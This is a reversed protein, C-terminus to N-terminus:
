TLAQHIAESCVRSSSILMGLGTSSHTISVLVLDDSIHMMLLIGQENEVVLNKCKGMSLEATMTDALSMMSSGMTAIRGVPYSTREVKEIMHGDVTSVIAADAADCMEMFENLHQAISKTDYNLKKKLLAM